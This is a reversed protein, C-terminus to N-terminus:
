NKSTEGLNGTSNKMKLCSLSTKIGASMANSNLNVYGKKSDQHIIVTKFM